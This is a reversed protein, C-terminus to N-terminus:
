SLVFSYLSHFSRNIIERVRRPSQASPAQKTPNRDPMVEEGKLGLARAQDYCSQCVIMDLLIVGQEESLVRYM